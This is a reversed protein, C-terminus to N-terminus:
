RVWLLTFNGFTTGSQITGTYGYVKVGLGIGCTSTQHWRHANSGSEWFGIRVLGTSGSVYTGYVNYSYSDNSLFSSRNSDCISLPNYGIYTITSDDTYSTSLVNANTNSAQTNLFDLLSTGVAELQTENVNIPDELRIEELAVTDFVTYKAEGSSLNFDTENFENQDTTWATSDYLWQSGSGSEIKAALTWGGGDTTMDCYAEFAGNGDPNLWYVGDGTSYGMSSVEDCSLAACDTSAGTINMGVLPNSDDCDGASALVGDCDQDDSNPLNVDNDDCDEWTAVGDGDLDEQPCENVFITTTSTGDYGNGSSDTYSGEVTFWNGRLDSESSPDNLGLMSSQIDGQNRATQWLRFDHMYGILGDYGAFGGIYMPGNGFCSGRKDTGLTDVLEGNKYVLNPSVFAFHTWTSAEFIVESTTDSGSGCGNQTNWDVQLYGGDAISLRYENSASGDVGLLVQDPYSPLSGGSFIWGEFTFEESYDFVPGPVSVSSVLDFLVSSCGNEVTVSASDASGYAEGDFPTVTCTWADATLDTTLFTYSTYSVDPTTDQIGSSDSWQYTYSVQDGDADTATVDCTLDDTGMVAPDPTISVSTLAPLSNLVSVSNSQVPTGDEVGDNPMVVVYIEQGKAFFENLSNNSLSPMDGSIPSGDAYWQYSATLTGAQAADVDDLVVSANFISDTYATTPGIMVSTVTPISNLVTTSASMSSGTEMADAATVACEIVDGYVFPGTFTDTTESSTTGGVTWVYSLTPTEDDLDTVTVDCLISTTTATADQPLTVSQVTPVRNLLTETTDITISEGSTDIATATCTVQAGPMMSGDLVLNPGTDGTSWVYTYTLVADEPDIDSATATCTLTSDNYFSDSSTIPATIGTPASNSITLTPSTVNAGDAIGDNPTVVVYVQDDKDFLTGDITDGSGGLIESDVGTMGDISHWTYIASVTHEDDIDNLVTTATITGDTYIPGASLILSDVTPVSNIIMTSSSFRQGDVKGDNPTVTCVVDDGVLFPGSLMDSTETQLEGDVTWDYSLTVDDQELDTIDSVTCTISDTSMTPVPSLAVLGIEPATNGIVVEATETATGGFGDEVTVACAIVDDDSYTNPDLQLSTDTGVETGNQMWSYSVMLDEMDGDEAEFTCELLSNVSVTDPIISVSSITPESNDISVSVSNTITEIGDSVTATCILEETPQVLDSSLQLIDFEGIVSGDTKTWQYDLSLQDNNEDEANAVCMIETDSTINTDPVISISTFTPAVNINKEPEATCGILSILGISSITRM